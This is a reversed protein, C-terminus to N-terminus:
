AFLSDEKSVWGSKQRGMNFSMRANLALLRQLLPQVRACVLAVFRPRAHGLQLVRLDVQPELDLYQETAFIRGILLV